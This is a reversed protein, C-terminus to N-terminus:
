RRTLFPICLRNGCKATKLDGNQADYYSIIPRGDPPTAASVFQGVNGPGGDDLEFNTLTSDSCDRTACKATRLRGASTSGSLYAIVPLGEHGMTIATYGTGIAGANAVPASAPSLCSNGTCTALYLTFVGGSERYFSVMPAGDNAITMSPAFGTDLILDTLPVGKSTCLANTCKAVHLDLSSTQYAVWPRGDIGMAISPSSANAQVVNPASFTSCDASSCKVLKVDSDASYAIVPFGDVGVTVSTTTVTVGADLMVSGSSSCDESTCHVLRLGGNAHAIAPYGDVGIMISPATGPGLSTRTNGISCTADGCKILEVSPGANDIFSIVPLGDNGVVISTGAGVDGTTEVAGVQQTRPVEPLLEPPAFNASEATKALLAYSVSLFQTRPTMTEGEVTIEIWAGGDLSSATIPTTSGLEVSYVGDIVDVNNHSESWFSSIANEAPYLSFVLETPGNVPQGNTDLLLGQFHMMEPTNANAVQALWVLVLLTAKLRNM